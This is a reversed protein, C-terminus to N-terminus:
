LCRTVKSISSVMVEYHARLNEDKQNNETSNLRLKKSIDRFKPKKGKGTAQAGYCVISLKM